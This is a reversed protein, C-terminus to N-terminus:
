EIVYNIFQILESEDKSYASKQRKDIDGLLNLAYIIKEIKYGKSFEPIRKRVSPSIPIYSRNQQFTGKQMKYFLMEQFLTTIPSILSLMSESKTIINKGLTIAKSYEKSGLVLLFEWRKRERGWIASSKLDDATILNRNGIFLCVKEIENQLNSLSDGAIDVFLKECFSNAEKGRKKILYNAWKKMDSPFPTQVDITDVFKGIKNIFSSKINWEDHLFLLIQNDIPNKCLNYLDTSSKGRLQQPNKIIYLKKSSFLDQTTIYDILEKGNMEETSLFMKDIDSNSFYITSLQNIFLDQLFYDNGKLLYIPHIVGNKIEEIAQRVKM